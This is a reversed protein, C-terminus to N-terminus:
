DASAVKFGVALKEWRVIVTSGEIVYDLSEVHEIKGPTAKVRLVESDAYSYPRGWVGTKSNFIVTWEGESPETWLSYAGAALKEGQITVDKSFYIVTAEDAGARWVKGYPVLGGWVARDKVNPRGYQVIVDVGDITGTTKGNKSSRDADDGRAPLDQAQVGLTGLLLVAAMLGIVYKSKSM